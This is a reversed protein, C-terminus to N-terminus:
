RQARLEDLVDQLAERLVAPNARRESAQVAQGFFFNELSEKGNLYSNIM